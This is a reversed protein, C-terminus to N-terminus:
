GADVPTTTDPRARGSHSTSISAIATIGPIGPQATVRDITARERVRPQEAHRDGRGGRRDRRAACMGARTNPATALWFMVSGVSPREIRSRRARPSLAPAASRRSARRWPRRRRGVLSPPRRRPPARPANRRGPARCPSSRPRGRHRRRGAIQEGVGSTGAAMTSANSPELPWRPARRTSASAARASRPPSAPGSCEAPSRTTRSTAHGMTSRRMSQLSCSGTASSSRSHRSRRVASRPSRSARARRRSACRREADRAIALRAHFERQPLQRIEDRTASHPLMLSAELRALIEWGAMEVAMEWMSRSSSTCSNRRWWACPRDSVGAPRANSRSAFCSSICASPSQEAAASTPRGGRPSSATPQNVVSAGM